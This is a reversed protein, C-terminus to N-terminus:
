GHVFTWECDGDDTPYEYHKAGDCQKIPQQWGTRSIGRLTNGLELSMPVYVDGPNDLNKAADKHEIAEIPRSPKKNNPYCEVYDDTDQM